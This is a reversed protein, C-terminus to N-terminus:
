INGTFLRSKLSHDTLRNALRILRKSTLPEGRLVLLNIKRRCRYLRRSHWQKQLDKQM